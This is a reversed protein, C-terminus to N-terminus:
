KAYKMEMKTNLPFFSSCFNLFAAAFERLFSWLSCICVYMHLYRRLKQRLSLCYLIFYFTRTVWGLRWFFKSYGKNSEGVTNLIFNNFLLVYNCQVISEVLLINQPCMNMCIAYFLIELHTNIDCTQQM